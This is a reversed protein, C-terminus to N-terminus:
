RLYILDTLWHVTYGVPQEDNVGLAGTRILGRLLLHRDDSSAEIYSFCVM